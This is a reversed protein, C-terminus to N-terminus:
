KDKVQRWPSLGATLACKKGAPGSRRTLKRPPSQNLVLWRSSYNLECANNINTQISGTLCNQNLQQNQTIAWPFNIRDYNDQSELRQFQIKGFVLLLGHQFLRFLCGLQPSMFWRVRNNHMDITSKSWWHKTAAPYIVRNPGRLNLLNSTLTCQSTGTKLTLERKYYNPM